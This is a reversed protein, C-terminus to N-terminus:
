TTCVETHETVFRLLQAAGTAQGYNLAIELDVLHAGDAVVGNWLQRTWYYWGGYLSKGKQIDHKGARLVSGSKQTAEPSFGPPNPVKVDVHEFPFYEPSPLGGGLSIM